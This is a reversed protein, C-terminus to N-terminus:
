VGFTLVFTTDEYETGLQRDKLIMLFRPVEKRKGAKDKSIATSTLKLADSVIYRDVRGLTETPKFRRVITAILIWCSAVSYLKNLDTLQEVHKSPYRWGDDPARLVTDVTDSM